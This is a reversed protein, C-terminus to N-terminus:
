GDCGGSPGSVRTLPPALGPPSLGREGNRGAPGSGGRADQGIPLADFMAPAFFGGVTFPSEFGRQTAVAPLRDASFGGFGGKGPGFGGGPGFPDGGGPGFGGKGKGKGGPGKGGPGPGFPDGGGGPGFDDGKGKGKGKKGKGPGFDDPPGKPGGKGGKGKGKGAGPSPLGFADNGQSAIKAALSLIETKDLVGDKNIDGQDVLNQMREPLDDRTVKGTNLKDFSLIHDAISDVTVNGKGKKGGDPGKKKGDPPGKKPPQAEAAGAFVLAASIAVVLLVMKRMM